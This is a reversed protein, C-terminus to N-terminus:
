EGLLLMQDISKKAKQRLAENLVINEGGIGKIANLVDKLTTYKMDKCVLIEPELIHFAKDPYKLMLNDAVGRETGIIVEKDSNLAFNIIESTSGIMDALSLVEETCEPHAVFLANPHEKKAKRVHEQTLGQHVPCYGDWLIINKEPLQKQIWAGLNKDPIFLIKPADLKSIIKVASSSTVCVDCVAKLAATTNIYAVVAANPNEKKFAVVREPSIQEAMPCTAKSVPLIVTKEPSLIKVTEAMFRVGCLVIRKNPIRSAEKSLAFSDGTIDAVDIIEPSQYTHAMVITDTEAKINKIANAIKDKNM